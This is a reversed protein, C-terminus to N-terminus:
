FFGPVIGQKLHTLLVTSLCMEFREVEISIYHVNFESSTPHDYIQGITLFYSFFGCDNLFIFIDMESKAVDCIDLFGNFRDWTCNM